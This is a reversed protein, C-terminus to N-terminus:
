QERYRVANILAATTEILALSENSARGFHRDRIRALRELLEQRPLGSRLIAAPDFAAGNDAAGELADLQRRVEADPVSAQGAGGGPAPQRGLQERVQAMFERAEASLGQAPLALLAQRGEPGGARMMFHVARTFVEMEGSRLLPLVAPLSDPGGLLQLVDLVPKVLAADKLFPQLHREGAAGFRGYLLVRVGGEDIASGQQPLPLSVDNRLFARDILPLLRPDRSAAAAHVLRFLQPGDLMAGPPLALAAQLALGRDAESGYALLFCAADLLLQASPRPARLEASLERRLLPIADERYIGFVRWAANLETRQAGVQAANAAPPMARIAAIRGALELEPSAPASRAVAANGAQAWVPGGALAGAVLLGACGALLVAAPRRMM